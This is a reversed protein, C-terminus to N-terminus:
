YGFAVKLFINPLQNISIELNVWIRLFRIFFLQLWGFRFKRLLFFKKKSFWSWSFFVLNSSRSFSFCKWIKRKQNKPKRPRLVVDITTPTPTPTPDTVSSLRFVCRDSFFLKKWADSYFLSFLFKTKKRGKWRQQKKGLCRGSASRLRRRFAEAKKRFFKPEVINREFGHNSKFGLPEKCRRLVRRRCPSINNPLVVILCSLSRTTTM